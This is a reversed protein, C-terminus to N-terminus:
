KKFSRVYAMRAKMLSSSKRTKRNTPKKLHRRKIKGAGIGSVLIDDPGKGLFRHFVRRALNIDHASGFIKNYAKQLLGVDDRDQLNKAIAAFWPEPNQAVEDAFEVAISTPIMSHSGQKVDFNKILPSAIQLFRVAEDGLMIINKGFHRFGMFVTPMHPVYDSSIIYRLSADRDEDLAQAYPNRNRLKTISEAEAGRMGEITVMGVKRAYSPPLIQVALQGMGEATGGGLSHGAIITGDYLDPPTNLIVERAAEMFDEMDLIRKGPAYPLNLPTELKVGAYNPIRVTGGSVLDELMPLDGQTGRFMLAYMVHGNPKTITALFGANEGMHEFPDIHITHGEIVPNVGPRYTNYIFKWIKKIIRTEDASVNDSKAQIVPSDLDVGGYKTESISTPPTMGFLQPVARIIRAATEAGYRPAKTLWFDRWAAKPVNDHEPYTTAAQEYIAEPLEDFNKLPHEMAHYPDKKAAEFLEREHPDSLMQNYTELEKKYGLLRQLENNAQALKRLKTKSQQGKSLKVILDELSKIKEETNFMEDVGFFKKSVKGYDFAQAYTEPSVFAQQIMERVEPTAVNSTQVKGYPYVYNESLNYQWGNQAVNTPWWPTSAFDTTNLSFIPSVATM